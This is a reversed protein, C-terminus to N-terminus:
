RQKPKPGQPAPQRTGASRRAKMARLKKLGGYTMAGLGVYAVWEGLYTYPTKKANTRTTVTSTGPKIRTQTRGNHDLGFAYGNSSSQVFPRANATAMFKALGAHEIDFIPSDFIGLSASNTLLTAGNKTMHRYDEPAIISACVGSGVVIGNGLSVPAAKVTGPQLERQVKFNALMTRSHTAKLIYEAAYPIYEGAPILRAKQRSAFVGKKHSGFVLENQAGGSTQNHWSGIYLADTATNNKFLSDIIRPSAYDLGYEPYLVIQSDTSAEAPWDELKNSIIQVKTSPGTPQRYALWSIAILISAGLILPIAFRRLKKGALTTAIVVFAASLGYFGVFRALLGFPTYALFPTFSGFPLVTDLSGGRGMWVIAVLISITYEVAAWVVFLRVLFWYSIRKKSAYEAMFYRITLWFGAVSLAVITIFGLMAFLYGVFFSGTLTTIRLRMMWSWLTILIIGLAVVIYAHRNWGTQHKNPADM